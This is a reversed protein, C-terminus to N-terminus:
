KGVRMTKFSAVIKNSKATTTIWLKHETRDFEITLNFCRNLTDIEIDSKDWIRSLLTGSLPKSFTICISLVVDSTYLVTGNACESAGNVWKSTGSSMFFLNKDMKVLQLLLLPPHHLLLFLPLLLLPFLLLFFLFFFFLSFFFLTCQESMQNSPVARKARAHAGRHEKIQENAWESLGSSMPINIILHRLSRTKDWLEITWKRLLTLCTPLIISKLSLFYSWDGQGSAMAPLTPAVNKARLVKEKWRKSDATLGNCM